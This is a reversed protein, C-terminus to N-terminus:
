GEIVFAFHYRWITALIVGLLLFRPVDNHPKVPDPNPFFLSCICDASRAREEVYRTMAGLWVELKKPCSFLLHKNTEAQTLCVRCLVSVKEPIISHFYVGTPLKNILLRWWVSRANHPIPDKWFTARFAATLPPPPATMPPRQPLLAPPQYAKAFVAQRFTKTSALDFSGNEGQTITIKNIREALDGELTLPGPTDLAEVEAEVM